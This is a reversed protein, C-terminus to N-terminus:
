FFCADTCDKTWCKVIGTDLRCYEGCGGAVIVIHTCVDSLSISPSFLCLILHPLYNLLCVASPVMAFLTQAHDRQFFYQQCVISSSKQLSICSLHTDLLTSRNFRSKTNQSQLACHALQSSCAANCQQNQKRDHFEVKIRL